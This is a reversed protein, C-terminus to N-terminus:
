ARFPGSATSLFLLAVWHLDPRWQFFSTFNTVHTALGLAVIHRFSHAQFVVSLFPITHPQAMTGPSSLLSSLATVSNPPTPLRDTCLPCTCAGDKMCPWRTSELSLPGQFAGNQWALSLVLHFRAARRSSFTGSKSLEIRQRGMTFKWCQKLVFM